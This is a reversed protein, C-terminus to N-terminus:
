AKIKMANLEKRLLPSVMEYEKHLKDIISSIVGIDEMRVAVEMEDIIKMMSDMQLSGLSGKLKAMKKIVADIDDGMIAQRIEKLLQPTNGIFMDLIEVIQEEENTQRLLTLSYLDKNSVPGSKQNKLNHENL